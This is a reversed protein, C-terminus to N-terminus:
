PCPNPDNDNRETISGPAPINPNANREDSGYFLRGPLQAGTAPTLSPTCNRKHDNWIEINQFMAVYKETAIETLLAAGTLGALPAGWGGATRANNLATLAAADNGTRAHAEAIILQNELYTIIPQDFDPAGRGDDALKSAATETAPPAGLVEGGVPEFYHLLRPDNRAKMLDVLAKGAAMDGVRAVNMFQYWLNQEGATNTHFSKFDNAPSSIGNAAAALAKTLCNGACATAALPSGAVQSEVWHMYFRAKLTNAAQIWKARDGGYVLDVDGPGEGAAAQLDAIAGDLLTQIAAYVAAQDDLEPQTVDSVAQSYPIDGWVSAATGFILAEWVKAIGVYTRDGLETGGEQIGRIDILGGGSYMRSFDFTFDDETVDYADRVQQQRGIGSMAQNWMNSMRAIDGTQFVFGTVQVAQLLQDLEAATPRNPDTDLGPGSLFDDCGALVGALALTCVSAMKRFQM